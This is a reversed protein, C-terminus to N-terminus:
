SAQQHACGTGSITVCVCLFSVESKFNLIFDLNNRKFGQSSTKMEIRRGTSNKKKRLHWNGVAWVLQREHWLVWSRSVALGTLHTGGTRRLVFNM